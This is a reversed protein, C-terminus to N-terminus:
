TNSGVVAVCIMANILFLPLKKNCCALDYLLVSLNISLLSM